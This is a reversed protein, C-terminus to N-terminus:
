HLIASAIFTGRLKERLPIYASRPMKKFKLKGETKSFRPFLCADQM